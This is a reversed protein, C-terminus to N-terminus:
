ADMSGTWSTFTKLFAYIQAGTGTPNANDSAQYAAYDPSNPIPGSPGSAGSDNLRYREIVIPSYVQRGHGDLADRAEKSRYVSLELDIVRADADFGFRSYKAYADITGPGTPDPIQKIIAL